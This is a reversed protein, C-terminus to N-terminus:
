ARKASLIASTGLVGALIVSLFWVIDQLRFAGRAPSLFHDWPGVATIADKVDEDFITTFFQVFPTFTAMTLVVTIFLSVILAVVQDRTMASIFTSIALYSCALLFTGIYGSLIALNDPKGLYNVTIWIPFTLAIAILWVTAAAKFKGAIVAWLSIPYTGILEITGSRTEEAWQRMGVAPVLIMLAFPQYLFFSYTLSADGIDIFSGLSFTLVMVLLLYIVIVAYAIPQSFYSVLERKYITLLDKM